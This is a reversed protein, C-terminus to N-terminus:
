ISRIKVLDGVSLELPLHQLFFKNKKADEFTYTKIEQNNKVETTERYKLLIDFDNSDSNIQQTKLGYWDMDLVQKIVIRSKHQFHKKSFARLENVKQRITNNFKESDAEERVNSQYAM